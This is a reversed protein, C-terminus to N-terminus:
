AKYIGIKTCSLACRARAWKWGWPYVHYVSVGGGMLGALLVVVFLHLRVLRTADRLNKLMLMRAAAMICSPYAARVMLKVCERIQFDMVGAIYLETM